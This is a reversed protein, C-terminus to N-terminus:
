NGRIRRVFARLTEANWGAFRGRQVIVRNNGPYELYYHFVFRAQPDEWGRMEGFRLDNFVLTDKWHELTYYGESFRLLARVDGRSRFSGFRLLSDNRPFYRFGITQQRDFVSIYGTHYGASDEAVIYWLCSNLPTPTTFYRDYPLHQRQLERRVLKDVKYKNLVCYYLYFSSAILGFLVWFRRMRSNRRLLLLAFFSIGLWGSYFPDAVFLTNFSVRYHDFPEFWGTGYANFADLFIHIFLQFGFFFWWQGRTMGSARNLRGAAWALLPTM